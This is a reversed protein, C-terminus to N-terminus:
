EKLSYQNYNFFYMKLKEEMESNIKGMYMLTNYNSITLLSM